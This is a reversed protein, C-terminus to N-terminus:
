PMRRKLSALLMPVSDKKGSVEMSQGKSDRVMTSHTKRTPIGNHYHKYAWVTDHTAMADTKYPAANIGM